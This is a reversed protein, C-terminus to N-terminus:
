LAARREKRGTNLIVVKCKRGDSSPRMPAPAPIESAPILGIAAEARKRWVMENYLRDVFSEFKDAHSQAEEIRRDLRALTNQMRCDEAKSIPIVNSRMAM